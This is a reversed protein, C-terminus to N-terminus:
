SYKMAKELHAGSCKLHKWHVNNIWCAMLSTRAPQISLVQYQVNFLVNTIPWHFEHFPRHFTSNKISIIKRFHYAILSNRNKHTGSNISWQSCYYVIYWLTKLDHARFYSQKPKFELQVMHQSHSKLCIIQTETGKDIFNHYLCYRDWLIIILILCNWTGM